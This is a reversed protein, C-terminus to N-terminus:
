SPEPRRSAPRSPAGRRPSGSPSCARTPAARGPDGGGRRVAGGRAGRDGTAAVVPALAILGDVLDLPQGWLRRLFVGQELEPLAEERRGHAALAVGRATHM